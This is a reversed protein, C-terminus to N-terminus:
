QPVKFTAVIPRHDSAQNWHDSRYIYSKPRDWKKLLNDTVLIFDIREYLDAFKWYHTWHDGVSDALWLDFLHDPSTRSGM